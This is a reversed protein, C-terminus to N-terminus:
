FRLLARVASGASASDPNMEVSGGHTLTEMIAKNISGEEDLDDAPQNSSVFLSQVRGGMAAELVETIDDSVLGTGLLDAIRRTRNLRESDFHSALLDSALRHLDKDSLHDANGDIVQNSVHPYSTVSRYLPVYYPVAALVLPVSEGHLAATVSVDVARFYRELSEKDLEEGAGHGHFSLNGGGVSRMQLQREPDEYQLAEDMSRPGGPLDIPTLAQHDGRFLRMNNKSLALVFYRRDNALYPVAQRLFFYSSVYTAETVSYPLSLHQCTNKRAYIALGESRNQWFGSPATLSEVPDLIARIQQTSLGGESLTSDVTSLLNKFRSSDSITENGHRHTPLYMSVCTDHVEALSRFLTTSTM